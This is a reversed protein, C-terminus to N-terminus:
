GKPRVCERPVRIPASELFRAARRPANPQEAAHAYPGAERVLLRLSVEISKGAPREDIEGGLGFDRAPKEVVFRAGPGIVTSWRVDMGIIAPYRRDNYQFERLKGSPADAVTARLDHLLLNRQPGMEYGLEVTLSSDGPNEIGAQLLLQGGDFRCAAVLRLQAIEAAPTASEATAGLLVLTACFLPNASWRVLERM